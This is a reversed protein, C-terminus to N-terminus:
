IKGKPYNFYKSSIVPVLFLLITFISFGIDANHGNLTRVVPSNPYFHELSSLCVKIGLLGIIVYAITELFSYSEMLKVFYQAIFRMALIGIFVGICILVLNPTYAVAAFINDISFALDMVEVMLITAWFNGVLGVTYKYIWKNNKETQHEDSHDQRKTNSFFDYALYLLYIGGLPKLWWISILISVFLMCLGRFIYAGWIGYRLAKARQAQPLDKVMTAIVAANDVSLLSEILILNLVIGASALPADAIQQLQETINILLLIKM